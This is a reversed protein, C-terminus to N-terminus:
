KLGNKERKLLLYIIFEYKQQTNFKKLNVGYNDQRSIVEEKGNIIVGRPDLSLIVLKPAIM